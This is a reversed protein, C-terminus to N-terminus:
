ISPEHLQHQSRVVSLVVVMPVFGSAEAQLQQATREDLEVM